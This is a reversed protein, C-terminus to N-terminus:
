ILFSIHWLIHTIKKFKRETCSSVDLLEIYETIKFINRLSKLLMSVQDHWLIVAVSLEAFDFVTVRDTTSPVFTLEIAM